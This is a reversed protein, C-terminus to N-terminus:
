TFETAHAKGFNLLGNLMKGFIFPPLEGLPTVFEHGVLPNALNLTVNSSSREVLDVRLDFFIDLGPPARRQLEILSGEFFLESRLKGASMRTRDPRGKRPTAMIAPIMNSCARM